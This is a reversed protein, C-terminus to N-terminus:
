WVHTRLFNKVTEKLVRAKKSCKTYDSFWISVFRVKAFELGERAAELLYYHFFRPLLAKCIVDILSSHILVQFTSCIM